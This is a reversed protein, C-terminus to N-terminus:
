SKPLRVELQRLREELDERWKREAQLEAKLIAQAAELRATDTSGDAQLQNDVTSRNAIYANLLEYTRGIAIAHDSLQAEVSAPWQAEATVAGANPAADAGTSLVQREFAESINAFAKGDRTMRWATWAWQRYRPFQMEPHTFPHRAPWINPVMRYTVIHVFQLLAQVLDLPWVANAPTESLAGFDILRADGADDVIVNWPALDNHYLCHAEFLALDRLIGRIVRDPDYAAGERILDILLRGPLCQRVIWAESQTSGSELLRPVTDSGALANLAAIERSIELRNFEGRPAVLRFRKAMLANAFLYTRTGANAPNGLAHPEQTAHEFAICKAGFYWFSNSAFLLPREVKSLHTPFRCVEHVFAYGSLLSQEDAPLSPAWYVPEATLALEAVLVPIKKALGDMMATVAAAGHAHCEHHLVSLLLVVDFAAPELKELYNAIYDIVFNAKLTPHESALFQSIAINPACMDVGTVQHGDAALSLSLYGQASGLDLIRLPRGVEAAVAGIIERLRSLRDNTPRSSAEGIEPHGYIPQYIEPLAKILEVLDGRTTM